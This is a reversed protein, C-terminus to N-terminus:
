TKSFTKMHNSIIQTGEKITTYIVKEYEKDVEMQFKIRKRM